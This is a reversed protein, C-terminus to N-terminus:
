LKISTYNEVMSTRNKVLNKMLIWWTYDPKKMPEFLCARVVYPMHPIALWGGVTPTYMNWEDSSNTVTVIITYGGYTFQMSHEKELSQTTYNFLTPDVGM